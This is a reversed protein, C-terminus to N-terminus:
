SAGLRRKIEAAVLWLRDQGWVELPAEGDPGSLRYSPVGWLGLEDYLRLRNTELEDRWGEQDLLPRCADFDLGAREAVLRLGEDSGLDCRENFAAQLFSSLFAAGKGEANARPWLAFGREVPTGIPDLTNGFPVGLFAAERAADSFIYRGKSLTAPVGRMVMPMVPRLEPEIGVSAALKMSEDFIMATYPSRLSPYIELQLRGDNQVAGADLPPRAFRIGAEADRAAGVRIWRAELHHLRDVGWYWEDGAHFMAGSYHGRKERLRNSAAIQQEATEADIPPHQSAVLAITDKDGSWLAEGVRLAVEVFEPESTLPALIRQALALLEPTPAEAQEPFRLGYHPAIWACDRRAYDSLLEPEPTNPGQAPGCLHMTWSVDYREALEACAQVALHGYPDGLELFFEVRHPRGLLRRRREFRKERRARRAQDGMRRAVISTVRRLLPSPDSRSAFSATSDAM